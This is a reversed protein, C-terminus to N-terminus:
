SWLASKDQDVPKATMVSILISRPANVAEQIWTEWSRSTKLDNRPQSSQSLESVEGASIFCFTQAGPEPHEPLM